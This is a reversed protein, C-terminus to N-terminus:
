GLWAILDDWYITASRVGAETLYHTNRYPGFIGEIFGEDNIAWYGGNDPLDNSTLLLYINHEKASAMLDVINDLVEPNLGGSGAGLGNLPDGCTDLFIRVTNYGYDSLQAFIDNIKSSSYINEALACDGYQTIEIHNVGRPIFTEGTVIDIFNEGKVIIRHPQIEESDPVSNAIKTPVNTETPSSIQSIEAQRCSSLGLILISLFFFVVKQTTNM